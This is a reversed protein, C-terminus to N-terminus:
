RRQPGTREVRLVGLHLGHQHGAMQEPQRTVETGHDLGVGRDGSDQAGAVPDGSDCVEAPAILAPATILAAPVQAPATASSAPTGSGIRGRRPKTSTVSGSGSVM